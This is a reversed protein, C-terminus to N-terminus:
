PRYGTREVKREYKLSGVVFRIAGGHAAVSARAQHLAQAYQLLDFIFHMHGDQSVHM